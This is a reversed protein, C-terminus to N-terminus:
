GACSTRGRWGSARRRGGGSPGGSMPRLQDRLRTCRARRRGPCARAARSSHSRLGHKAVQEDTGADDRGHARHRLLGDNRIGAPGIARASRVGRTRSRGRSQLDDRDGRRFHLARLRTLGDRYSGLIDRARGGRRRPLEQSLGGADFYVNLPLAWAEGGVCRHAAEAGIVGGIESEPDIAHRHVFSHVSVRLPVVVPAQDKRLHNLIEVHDLPGRTREEPVEREGADDVHAREIMRSPARAQILPPDAPCM